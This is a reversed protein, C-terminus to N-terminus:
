SAASWIRMDNQRQRVGIGSCSEYAKRRRMERFIGERQMKRKLAKLAQEVNNDRVFVQLHKGITNSDSNLRAIWIIKLSPRREPLPRCEPAKLIRSSM